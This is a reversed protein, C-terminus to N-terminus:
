LHNREKKRLSRKMKRIREEVKENNGRRWRYNEKKKVNTHSINIDTATKMEKSIQNHFIDAIKDGIMFTLKLSIMWEKFVTNNHGRRLRYM